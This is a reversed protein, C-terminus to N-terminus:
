IKVPEIHLVLVQQLFIFRQPPFFFCSLIYLIVVGNGEPCLLFWPFCSDQDDVIFM